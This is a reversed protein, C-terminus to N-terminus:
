PGQRRWFTWTYTCAYNVSCLMTSKGLSFIARKGTTAHRLCFTDASRSLLIPRRVCFGRHVCLRRVPCMAHLVGYSTSSWGNLLFSSPGSTSSLTPTRLDERGGGAGSRRGRTRPASIQPGARAPAERVYDVLVDRRIQEGAWHATIRGRGWGPVGSPGTRWTTGRWPSPAGRFQAGNVLIAVTRMPPWRHPGCRDRNRAHFQSLFVPFRARTARPIKQFTRYPFTYKYTIISAKCNILISCVCLSCAAVISIYINIIYNTNFWNEMDVSVINITSFKCPLYLPLWSARARAHYRYKDSFTHSPGRWTLLSSSFMLLVRTIKARLIFVRRVRGILPAPLLTSKLLFLYVVFYRKRFSSFKNNSINGTAVRSGNGNKIKWVNVYKHLSTRAHNHLM